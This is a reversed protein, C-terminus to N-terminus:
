ITLETFKNYRAKEFEKQDVRLFTWKVETGAQADGAQAGRAPLCASLRKGVEEAWRKGQLDKVAVDVDERGKTEVIVM